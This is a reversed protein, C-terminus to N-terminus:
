KKFLDPHKRLTKDESIFKEFSSSNIFDEFLYQFIVNTSLRQLKKSSFSYIVSMFEEQYRKRTATTLHYKIHATSVMMGLYFTLDDYEIGHLKHALEFRGSHLFQEDSFEQM